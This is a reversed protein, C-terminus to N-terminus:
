PLNSNRAHVFYPNLRLRPPLSLSPRSFPLRSPRSNRPRALRAGDRAFGPMLFAGTAAANPARGTKASYGCGPSVDGRAHWTSAGRRNTTLSFEGLESLLYFISPFGGIQDSNPFSMRQGPRTWHHISWDCFWTNLVFWKATPATFRISPIAIASTAAILFELRDM